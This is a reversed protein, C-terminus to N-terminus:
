GSAMYYIFGLFAVIVADEEEGEKRGEKRRDSGVVKREIMM